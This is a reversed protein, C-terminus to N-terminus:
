LRRQEIAKKMAYAMTTSYQQKLKGDWQLWKRVREKIKSASEKKPICKELSTHGLLLESNNVVSVAYTLNDIKKLKASHIVSQLYTLSERSKCFLKLIKEGYCGYIIFVDPHNKSRQIFEVDCNFTGKFRNKHKKRKRNERKSQSREFCPHLTWPSGIADFYVRSGHENQYYYVQSGCDPCRANPSLLREQKSVWFYQESLGSFYDSLQNHNGGQFGCECWPPHNYANCGMIDGSSISLNM